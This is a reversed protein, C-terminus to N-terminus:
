EHSKKSPYLTGIGLISNNFVVSVDTGDVFDDGTLDTVLYGSQGISADNFCDSVDTGDLFYDHNVDGSFICWKGEKKKLNNGYAKTSDNSFDYNLVTGLTLLEGGSRSWTEISNRHKIVFYYNTGDSANPFYAKALFSISDLIVRDSDAFSYPAVSNALYVTFTDKINLRNNLPDYFGEPIFKLDLAGPNREHAGRDVLGSLDPVPYGWFDKNSHNFLQTGSNIAPSNKQLQYGNVTGIGASGSGPNVFKPDSILKHADAPESAPHQGYFLNYDFFNNTSSSFNYATSSPNKLIYFINNYYSTNDPYGSWSNHFVVRKLSNSPGSYIVNNYILTNTPTGSLYVIGSTTSGAGGDNQSINYRVITSDNFRDSGGQCTVVMFGEDNDHSYNFQFVSRKCRYDSDFGSADADGANYVTLYSENYQVFADDCNFTFVANGSVTQACHKFINREILPMSAVRIIMGNGGTNEIWNNRVILYTSPTWNTNTTLTRTDWSSTNSIGTRDCDKITCGDIILSDFKTASTSGTVEIFIGGCDKNTIDGRVDHINLNLLKIRRVTGFNQAQIYVGRLLLTSPSAPASTIELNSITWYPQNYLYVINQNSSTGNGSIIPLNGTGYKGITISKTTSGSGKPYLQGTWTGGCIFLISDGPMFTKGNVKTLSQWPTSASTGNNSDNGTSSNVYYTLSQSYAGSVFSFIILLKITFILMKNKKYMKLARSNM